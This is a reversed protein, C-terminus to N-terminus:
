ALRREAPLWIGGKGMEIPTSCREDAAMNM